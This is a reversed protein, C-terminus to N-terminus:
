TISTFFGGKRAAGLRPWLPTLALTSFPRASFQTGGTQNMRRNRPFQHTGILGFGFCKEPERLANALGSGFHFISQHAIRTQCGGAASLYFAFEIGVRLDWRILGILQFFRGSLAFSSELKPFERVVHIRLFIMPRVQLYEHRLFCPFVPVVSVVKLVPLKGLFTERLRCYCEFFRLWRSRHALMLRLM